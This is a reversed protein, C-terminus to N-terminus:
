CSIDIDDLDKIYICGKGTKHKGLKGLLPGYQEVGTMFYLTLNQKRPSFGTM